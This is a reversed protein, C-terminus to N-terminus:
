RMLCVGLSSDCVDGQTGMDCMETGDFQSCVATVAPLESSLPCGTNNGGKELIEKLTGAPRRARSQLVTFSLKHWGKRTRM